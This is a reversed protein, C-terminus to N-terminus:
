GTKDARREMWNAIVAGIKDPSVPKTLYDDMGAELCRERDGKLAHATVGIIPVRQGSGQEAKRIAMTAELGNMEPMSVDMLVIRPRCERVLDVARRGNHAIRFNLDLGKLIQSFVLQNVENDEAVVVDIVASDKEPVPAAAQAPRLAPLPLKNLDTARREHQFPKENQVLAAIDALSKPAANGAEAVAPRRTAQPVMKESRWRASQLVKVLTALLLSSRAPKTLHAALALEQAIRSYDGLDVSTLLIVPIDKTDAGDRLRKAVEAGNMDPMQYDLIIADLPKGLKAMQKAAAIGIAGSEAAASEFEWNALQETLISRNVPNDDIILIRAGTIDVPVPQQKGSYGPDRDITINVIFTSGKGPESTASIAGQMLAALRSAIALGLGTGEHRRTSSADVQAFQQFVSDLKDSPIGIGTDEVRITLALQEGIEEGTIDVLVHGQDTFKVANGVLNTIIQRFRGVDGIISEPLKPDIRTILDIDKDAAATSVLTLIDEVAERLDFPAPDLQLQGADIKSFDLIDNIITLLANGSKVIVDAFTRQRGDLETKALLEAMGLVGNMPTRIEHSMNALFESKARDASQAAARAAEADRTAAELGTQASTITREMPGVIFTVGIMAVLAALVATLISAHQGDSQADIVTQNIQAQTMGIIPTIHDAAATNISRFLRKATSGQFSAFSTLREVDWILTDLYKALSVDGHAAGHVSGSNWLSAIAPPISANALDNILRASVDLGSEEAEMRDAESMILDGNVSFQLTDFSLRLDALTNVVGELAAETQAKQQASAGELRALHVLLAETSSSAARVVNGFRILTKTQEAHWYLYGVNALLVTAFLIAVAVFRKRLYSRTIAISM